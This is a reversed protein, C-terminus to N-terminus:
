DCNRENLEALLILRDFVQVFHGLLTRPLDCRELDIRLDIRQPAVRSKFFQKPEDPALKVSPTLPKAEFTIPPKPIAVRLTTIITARGKLAPITPLLLRADGLSASFLVGAKM